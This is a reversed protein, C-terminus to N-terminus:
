LIGQYSTSKVLNRKFFDFDIGACCEFIEEMMEEGHKSRLIDEIKDSSLKRSVCKLYLLIKITVVLM